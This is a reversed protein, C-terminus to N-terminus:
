PQLEGQCIEDRKGRRVVDNRSCSRASRQKDDTARHGALWPDSNPHKSHQLTKHTRVQRIAILEDDDTSSTAFSMIDHGLVKRM